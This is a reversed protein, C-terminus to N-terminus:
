KLFFLVFVVFALGSPLGIIFAPGVWPRYLPDPPPPEYPAITVLQEEDDDDDDDDAM